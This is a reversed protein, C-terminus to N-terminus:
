LFPHGTLGSASECNAVDRAKCSRWFQPSPLCFAQHLRKSSKLHHHFIHELEKAVFSFLPKSASCPPLLSPFYRATYNLTLAACPKCLLGFIICGKKTNLRPAQVSSLKLRLSKLEAWSHLPFVGKKQLSQIMKWIELNQRASKLFARSVKSLVSYSICFLSIYAELSM